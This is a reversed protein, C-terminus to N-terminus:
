SKGFIQDHDKVKVLGEEYAKKYFWCKTSTNYDEHNKQDYVLPKNFKAEIVKSYYESEKIIDNLFHDIADEGFYTKHPKSYLEVVCRLKYSYSCGNYDQYKKTNPNM